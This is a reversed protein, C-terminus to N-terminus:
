STKRTKPLVGPPKDVAAATGEVDDADRGRINQFQPSQVIDDVAVSIRYHHDKLDACMKSILPGDSLQVARSLAYGLLKRCFQHLFADGKKALLYQRLGDIGEFQAGDLVKAHADIPHHALDEARHRGIADFNELAFGYPDM